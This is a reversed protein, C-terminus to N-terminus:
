ESFDALRHRPGTPASQAALTKAVHARAQFLETPSRYTVMTGNATRVSLEGSAIARDLTDLDTQTYAMTPLM